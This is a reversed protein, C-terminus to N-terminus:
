SQDESKKAVKYEAMLERRAKVISATFARVKMSYAGLQEQTLDEKLKNAIALGNQVHADDAPLESLLSTFTDLQANLKVRTNELTKPKNQERCVIVQHCIPMANDVAKKIKEWKERIILIEASRKLNVNASSSNNSNVDVASTMILSFLVLLVLMHGRSLM